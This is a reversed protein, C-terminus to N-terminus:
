LYIPINQVGSSDHDKVLSLSDKCAVLAKEADDFNPVTHHLILEKRSLDKNRRTQLVRRNFVNHSCSFNSPFLLTEQGNPSSEAM